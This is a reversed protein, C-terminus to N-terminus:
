TSLRLVITGVLVMALAVKVASGLLFGLFAGTGARLARRADPDRAYEFLVAGVAPGLLIGPLGLFLGVLLGLGAGLVAWRSAKALRTGLVTAALDVAWILAAIVAAFALTGWGVRAFGNAWAVVVTGGLLLLSGPVVPLVVGLVGAALLLFGLVYGLAQVGGIHVVGPGADLAAQGRPSEGPPTV